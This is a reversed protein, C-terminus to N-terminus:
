SLFLLLFNHLNQFLRKLLPQNLEEAVGVVCTLNTALLRLIQRLEEADEYLTTHCAQAM